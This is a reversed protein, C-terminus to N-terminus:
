RVSGLALTRAIAEFAEATIAIRIMRQRRRNAIEDAEV